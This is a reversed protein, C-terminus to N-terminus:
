SASIYAAPCLVRRTPKMKLVRLVPSGDDRWDLPREALRAGLTEAVVFEVLPLPTFYVGDVRRASRARTRDVGGAGPDPDLALARM